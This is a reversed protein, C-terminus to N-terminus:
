LGEGEKTEELLSAEELAIAEATKEEEEEKQRRKRIFDRVLSRMTSLVGAEKEALVFFPIMLLAFAGFQVIFKLFGSALFAFLYEVVILGVLLGVFASFVKLYLIGRKWGEQVERLSIFSLVMFHCLSILVVAQAVGEIGWGLHIFYWTIGFGFLVTVAQLPMLLWHKRVTIIFNAYPHTLAMFFSGLILFKLAPIGSVYQPLLIPIIWPSIFWVLGILIPFMYALCLTPVRLYKELDRREDRKAFVEQFHPFFIIGLMNPLGYLYNSAMLAISYFGLAEFGLFKAIMIRDISVMVTRLVDSGVMAIGLSLVPAFAKWNFYLSFRYKTKVLIFTILFLYNLILSAFLGYLKFKWTLLCILILYCASSAINLFGAFVFEKYSRLLVVFLNYIRQIVVLCAVVMLGTFIETSYRSRNWWAFIVIGLAVVMAAATTFSFVLNKVEDAKEQDQKGLYYPVDRATATTVGLGAHKAYNQIVQLFAWIGMHAPGLFRRVLIGTAVDLFQAAYSSLSYIGADKFIQKKRSM